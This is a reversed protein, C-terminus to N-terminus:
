NCGKGDSDCSCKVPAGPHSLQNLTQSRGLDHDQPKHTQAGCWARHQCNPAQLRSGIRPRGRERRRGLEHETERDRQIEFIFVLFFWLFLVVVSSLKLFTKVTARPIPPTSFSMNRALIKMTALLSERFKRTILLPDWHSHLSIWPRAINLVFFLRYIRSQLTMHMFYPPESALDISCQINGAASISIYIQRLPFLFTM